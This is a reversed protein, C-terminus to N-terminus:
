NFYEYSEEGTNSEVLFPMGNMEEFTTINGEPFAIGFQRLGWTGM